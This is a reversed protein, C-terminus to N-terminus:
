LKSCHRPVKGPHRTFDAAKAQEMAEAARKRVSRQLAEARLINGQEDKVAVALPAYINFKKWQLDCLRDISGGYKFGANFIARLVGDGAWDLTDGEDITMTCVADELRTYIVAPSPSDSRFPDKVLQQVLDLLTSKGAGPAALRLVLRASHMFRDFVWCHLVWLAVAIREHADLTPIHRRLLTEVLELVNVRPADSPQAAQAAAAAAASAQMERLHEVAIISAVDNWSLGLKTLLADLKGRASERENSNSAGLM